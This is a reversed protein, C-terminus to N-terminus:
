DDVEGSGGCEPCRVHKVQWEGDEMWTIEERGSGGCRPCTQETM